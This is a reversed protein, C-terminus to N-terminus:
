WCAAARPRCTQTALTATSVTLLAERTDEPMGVIESM